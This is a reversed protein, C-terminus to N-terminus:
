KKWFTPSFLVLVTFLELRGVLMIFSLFWKIATPIDAFSSTPGYHGITPGVNSISSLVVGFSDSLSIGSVAVVCTSFIIIAVYITAFAYINSVTKDSVVHENVRIPLVANPHILRKLEYYSNKCILLLRAVKFGGSTSGASGGCFMLLLLLLWVAPKWITYDTTSFGTTTVFSVVQFLSKRFAREYEALTSADTNIVLGCTILMVFIGIMLIYSKFEEDKWLKDFRRKVFAWYLLAFNTGALVMFIIITYQIFASDWYAISAQKTSYGGSAMTTLAHCVADFFDMGGITLTIAAACTLVIYLVWLQRATNKIRPQLKDYTPGPFEALFLQMNGGFFPLVALSLVVIGMGGLWQMISRWFLLGHPLAEVNTLISAGTTTFGSMTEFFADTVSPICGHFLFPLMGFLSFLIWVLTVVVYGERVGIQRSSRMGTLYGILGGIATIGSAKLLPLFDSEHYGAAIAASVLLFLTEIFLLQGLIRFVRRHNFTKTM